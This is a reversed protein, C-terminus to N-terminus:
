AAPRVIPPGFSHGRMEGLLVHAPSMPPVRAHTMAPAIKACIM